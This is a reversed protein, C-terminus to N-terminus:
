PSTPSDSGSQLIIGSDTDSAEEKSEMNPTGRCSLISTEPNWQLVFSVSVSSRCAIERERERERESLARQRAAGCHFRSRLTSTLYAPQSRFPAHALLRKHRLLQEVQVRSAYRAVEGILAPRPASSRCSRTGRRADWGLDVPDCIGALSLAAMYM